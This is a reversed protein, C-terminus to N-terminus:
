SKTIIVLYQIKWFQETNMVKLLSVNKGVEEIQYCTESRSPILRVNKAPCNIEFENKNAINIKTFTAPDFDKALNISKKQFFSGSKEVIKRGILEKETGVVFYATKRTEDLIQSTKELETSVVHLNKQTYSLTDQTSKIVVDKLGITERMEAMTKENKTIEDQLNAVMQDLVKIRLNSKNMKDRLAAIDKKDKKLQDEIVSIDNIIKSKQTQDNEARTIMGSILVQKKRVDQLKDGIENIAGTIENIYSTLKKQEDEGLLNEQKLTAIEQKKQNIARYQTFIVGCLIIFLLIAAATKVGSGGYKKVPEQKGAPLQSQVDNM